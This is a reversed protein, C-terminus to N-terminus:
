QLPPTRIKSDQCHNALYTVSHNKNIESNDQEKQHFPNFEYKVARYSPCFLRLRCPFTPNWILTQPRSMGLSHLRSISHTTTNRIRCFSAACLLIAPWHCRTLATLQQSIRAIQYHSYTFSVASFGSSLYSLRFLAQGPFLYSIM